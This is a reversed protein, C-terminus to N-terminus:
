STYIRGPHHHINPDSQYLFVTLGTSQAMRGHDKAPRPRSAPTTPGLGVTGMCHVDCASVIHFGIDM